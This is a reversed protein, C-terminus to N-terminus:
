LSDYWSCAAKIVRSLNSRDCAPRPAYIWTLSEVDFEYFRLSYWALSMDYDHYLRCFYVLNRVYAAIEASSRPRMQSFYRSDGDELHIVDLNEPCIARFGHRYILRAALEQDECGWGVFEEDFWVSSARAVSFNCGIIAAWPASSELMLTQREHTCQIAESRLTNFVNPTLRANAWIRKPDSTFLHARSGCVLTQPGCHALMHRSLLDHAGITDGDLFVLVDGRACRVANNRSRSLRFGRDPQWIYRVDIDKSESASKVINLTQVSSGDDCIIVEFGFTADQRGLSALVHPLPDAQMYTSVIVSMELTNPHM